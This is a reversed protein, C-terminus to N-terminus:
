YLGLTYTIYDQHLTSVKLHNTHATTTQFGGICLFACAQFEVFIELLQAHSKQSLKFVTIEVQNAVPLCFRLPYPIYYSPSVCQQAIKSFHTPPSYGIYFLQKSKYVNALDIIAGFFLLSSLFEYDNYQLLLSMAMIPFFRYKWIAKM